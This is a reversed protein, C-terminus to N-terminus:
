ATKEQKDANADANAAAAGRLRQLSMALIEQERAQLARLGQAEAISVEVFNIVTGPTLYALQWLDASIVSALCPYGGTTQADNGLIIPQGDSPVQIMGPLVGTSSRLPQGDTLLAEGALRLGMRNSLATIQWNTQWLASRAREDFVEYDTARVTRLTTSFARQRVGGGLYPLTSSVFRTTTEGLNLTDGTKLARGELGGFGNILDTSRSGLVVPVDIGGAIALCARQGPVPAASLSLVHGAPVTHMFGPTLYHNVVGFDQSLLQAAMDTGMLVIQRCDHFRIQVPGFTIELAAADALNGLLMNASQLAPTDMMGAAPVGMHRWHKRGADQVSMLPSTQVVEIMVAGM